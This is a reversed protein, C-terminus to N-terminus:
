KTIDINYKSYKFKKPCFFVFFFCFVIQYTIKKINLMLVHSNLM